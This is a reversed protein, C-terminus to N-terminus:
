SILEGDNSITVLYSVSTIPIAFLEMVAMLKKFNSNDKNNENKSLLNLDEGFNLGEKVAFCHLFKGGMVETAIEKNM